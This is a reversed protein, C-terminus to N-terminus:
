FHNFKLKFIRFVIKERRIVIIAISQAQEGFLIKVATGGATAAAAEFPLPFAMTQSVQVIM